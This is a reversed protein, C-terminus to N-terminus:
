VCLTIFYNVKYIRSRSFACLSRQSRCFIKGVNGFDRGYSVFHATIFPIYLRVFFVSDYLTLM